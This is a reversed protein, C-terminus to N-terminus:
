FGICISLTFDSCFNKEDRNRLQKFRVPTKLSKDSGREQSLFGPSVHGPYGAVSSKIRSSGETLNTRCGVRLRFSAYSFVAVGAEPSFTVPVSLSEVLAFRGREGANHRM